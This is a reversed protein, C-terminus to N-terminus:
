RADWFFCMPVDDVASGWQFPEDVTVFNLLVSVAADDVVGVAPEVVGAVEDGGYLPNDIDADLGGFDNLAKRRLHSGTLIYKAGYNSKPTFGCM